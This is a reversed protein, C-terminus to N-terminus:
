QCRTGLKNRTSILDLVDVSGDLNVDGRWNDGSEIPKGLRNRILILDLVNVMCDGNADGLIHYVAEVATDAEVRVHMDTQRPQQAIGNTKWYAFNYPVSARFVRLQASLTVDQPALFIQEYPTTDGHTGWLHIGSFPSSAVSLRARFYTAVVIRDADMTLSVAFKGAPQEQGDVMWRIFGYEVGGVSAVAPASLEVIQQDDLNLTSNTIIGAISIGAVPESIVTLAHKRIQYVAVAATTHDVNF